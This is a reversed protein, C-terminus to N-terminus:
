TAPELLRLKLKAFARFVRDFTIMDCDLPTALAAHWADTWLDLSAERRAICDYWHKGHSPPVQDMIVVRPDDILAQVVNGAQAPRLPSSGMVRSNTLQRWPAMRVPLSPGVDGDICADWWDAAPAQHAHGETLLLLLVNADAIGRM